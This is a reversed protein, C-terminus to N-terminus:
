PAEFPSPVRREVLEFLGKGPKFQFGALNCATAFTDTDRLWHDAYAVAIVLDRLVERQKINQQQSDTM